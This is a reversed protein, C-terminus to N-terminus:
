LAANLIYVYILLYFTCTTSLNNFYVDILLCILDNCLHTDLPPGFPITSVIGKPLAFSSYLAGFRFGLM